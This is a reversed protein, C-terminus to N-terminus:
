RGGYLWPMSEFAPLGERPVVHQRAEYEVVARRLEIWTAVAEHLNHIHSRDGTKNSLEYWHEEAEAAADLQHILDQLHAHNSPVVDRRSVHQFAAPGAHAASNQKLSPAPGLQRNSWALNSHYLPGRAVPHYHGQFLLAYEAPTLGNHEKAYQDAGAERLAVFMERHGLMGAFHLAIRNAPDKANVNAGARLFHLVDTLNGERSKQLLMRDMVEQGYAASPAGTRAHRWRPEGPVAALSSSVARRSVCGGVRETEQGARVLPNTGNAGCASHAAFPSFPPCPQM